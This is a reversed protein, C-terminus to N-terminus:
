KTFRGFESVWVYQNESGATGLARFEWEGNSFESIDLTLYRVGNHNNYPLRFSSSIEKILVENADGDGIKQFQVKPLENMPERGFNYNIGFTITTDPPRYQIHYLAM